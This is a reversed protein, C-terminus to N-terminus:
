VFFLVLILILNWAKFMQSLPVITYVVHSSHFCVAPLFESKKERYCRYDSTDTTCFLTTEYIFVVIMFKQM